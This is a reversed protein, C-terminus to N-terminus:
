DLKLDVSAPLLRILPPDDGHSLAHCQMEVWGGPVPNLANWPSMKAVSSEKDSSIM